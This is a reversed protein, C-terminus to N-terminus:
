LNKYLDNYLLRNLEPLGTSPQNKRLLVLNKKIFVINDLFRAENVKM